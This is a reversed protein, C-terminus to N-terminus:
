VGKNLAFKMGEGLQHFGLVTLSIFLGPFTSIWWASMLVDKGDNIINGWSPLPVQVGIGLFSLASELLIVEAIKMPLIVFVINLCHPFIHYIMIPVSRMGYGRAALVYEREKLSLTEARVLRALEMWSTFAIIPILAWHSLDFLAILMLLLFIVPFALLFDLVRMMITDILGGFYGSIMGYILGLTVALGASALAIILSLRGGYLVRSFIDRGFKDTGFLHETGPQRYRELTIDGQKVPDYRTLLGAGAVLLIMIVVLLLGSRLSRNHKFQAMM